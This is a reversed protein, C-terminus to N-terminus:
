PAEYLTEVSPNGKKNLENMKRKCDQRIKLIAPSINRFQGKKPFTARFRKAVELQENKVVLKSRLSKLVSDIQQMPLVWEYREKWLPNHLKRKYAYGGFNSQLWNVLVLSTNTVSLSLRYKDGNRFICFCGEGDIIGAFYYINKHIAM